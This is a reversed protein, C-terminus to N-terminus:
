LESNVLPKAQLVSFPVLASPYRGSEVAARIDEISKLDTHRVAAYMNLSRLQMQPEVYKLIDNVQKFEFRLGDFQYDTVRRLEAIQAQMHKVQQYFVGALILAGIAFAITM